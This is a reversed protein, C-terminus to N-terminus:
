RKKRTRNGTRKTEKGDKTRVMKLRVKVNQQPFKSPKRYENVEMKSMSEGSSSPLVSFIFISTSDASEVRDDIVM